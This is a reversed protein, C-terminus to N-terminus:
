VRTSYQGRQYLQRTRVPDLEAPAVGRKRPHRLDTLKEGEANPSIAAHATFRPRHRPSGHSSGGATSTRPQRVQNDISVELEELLIVSEAPECSGGRMCMSRSAAPRAARM